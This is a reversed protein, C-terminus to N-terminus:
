REYITKVEPLVYPKMFKNLSKETVLDVKRQLCSELGNILRMYQFMGTSKGLRVLLDIDSDKRDEGRSVSGFVGAYEVGFEKFVPTTIQRIEEITM